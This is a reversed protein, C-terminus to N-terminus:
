LHTAQSQAEVGHGALLAFIERVRHDAVTDALKIVLKKFEDHSSATLEVALKGGELGPPVKLRIDSPLQLEHIRTWIANEAETLRPFRRRRLEEKIRKLKDARGLRPDSACNVVPKSGLIDEIMLQERLAIEELWDMFDRLQNEGVKLDVALRFLANRAALSWGLWRELTQWHFGRSQAYQRIETETM